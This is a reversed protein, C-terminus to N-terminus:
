PCSKPEPHLHHHSSIVNMSPLCPLTFTIGLMRFRLLVFSSLHCWMFSISDFLTSSAPHICLCGRALMLFKLPIQLIDERGTMELPDSTRMVKQESTLLELPSPHISQNCFTLGVAWSRSVLLGLGHSRWLFSFCFGSSVLIHTRLYSMMHHSAANVQQLKWPM